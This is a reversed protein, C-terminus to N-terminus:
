TTAIIAIYSWQGHNHGGTTDAHKISSMKVVHAADVNVSDDVVHRSVAARPLSAAAGAVVSGALVIGPYGEGVHVEV